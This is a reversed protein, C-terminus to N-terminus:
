KEVLKLLETKSLKSPNSALNRATVISRLEAVTKKKYDVESTSLKNIQIPTVTRLEVAETDSSTDIDIDIDQSIDDLKINDSINIVKIDEDDEDDDQGKEEDEDDEEDDDDEEDGDEDDDDDDEGGEEDDEEEDDEGEEDDDEDEGGNMNDQALGNNKIDEENSYSRYVNIRPDQTLSGKVTNLEKVLNQVIDFMTDCKQEM